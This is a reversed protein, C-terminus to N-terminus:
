LSFYPAEGWFVPKISSILIKVVTNNIVATTKIDSKFSM